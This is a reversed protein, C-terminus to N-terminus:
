HQEEEDRNLEHHAPQAKWKSLNEDLEFEPAEWDTKHVTYSRPLPFMGDPAFRVCLCDPAIVDLRLSGHEARILVGQWDQEVERVAGIYQFKGRASHPKHRFARFRGGFLRRM